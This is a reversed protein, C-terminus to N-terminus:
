KAKEPPAPYQRELVWVIRQLSRAQWEEALAIRDQDKRISGLNTVLVAISTRIQKLAEYDFSDWSAMTPIASLTLGLVFGAIFKKM